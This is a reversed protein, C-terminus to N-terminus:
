ADAVCHYLTLLMLGWLRPLALWADAHLLRFLTTLALGVAV